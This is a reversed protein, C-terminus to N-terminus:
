KLSRSAINMYSFYPISKRQTEVKMQDLIEPNDLLRRLQNEIETETSYDLFIVTGGLDVHQTGPLRKCMLPIGSGAAEEWYVSHRGPFVVLDAAAFLVYAERNDVWGDYEIKDSQLLRDFEKRLEPEVSGFIRLRLHDNNIQSVAKMLEFVERKASDIKGGTVLLMDGNSIRHTLRLREGLNEERVQKVLDDDAGMVLLSCKNAPLGYIRTLWEVRIPLVGYFKRVYPNLIQAMHKWLIKHLINMSLFNRGSNTWDAHNDVYVVTKPYLKLYRVIEPVEMFQVGHIFLVDPHYNALEGTLGVFRKIKDAHQTSDKTAKLRVIEVGDENIYRLKPTKVISGSTDYVFQTTIIKVSNGLRKHYKPLLNDQYSFGDTVVAEMCIHAIKM